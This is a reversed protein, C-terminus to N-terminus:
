RASVPSGQAEATLRQSVRDFEAVLDALLEARNSPNAELQACLSAMRPVGMALCGGKLKHAAQKLLSPDNAAIAREISEIQGPTHKLFIRIVNQSRRVKPDLASPAEAPEATSGAAGAGNAQESARADAAPWWRELIEELAAQSIPKALYDDMGAALVKEREGSLAHATVAIIPVRQKGAERKRIERAAQYGTMVPMQCDMLILPYERQELVDLAQQGDEAVDATYGLERLLELMVEQNIPNDEVVLLHRKETRRAKRESTLKRNSSQHPPRSNILRTMTAALDGARVPKQLFANALSKAEKPLSHEDESTLLIVLPNGFVESSRIKRALNLGDVEPMNMDTLVLGFPDGARMALELQNLASTAGDASASPIGWSTLLEELIFRNTENDDVILTRVKHQPVRPQSADVVTAEKLPLTFWFTSGKGLQSVVGIEGGMLQVLRKCIALGLGTGGYKRTLSGDVQSFADFLRGQAEESIGIGTDSVEFRVRPDAGEVAERRARLVIQGQETFKVANGLLNSLVQRLRDRDAEVYHPLGPEAHCVLEIRKLHARAAFLDVVEEVLHRLNCPENRLELKGAEIKSFDLVDNLVTMLGHASAHLTEIYRRQKTDLQTGHLLEIMGLVGNMPTRIEHSMNALFESKLRAAELAAATTKELRRFAKETLRFLPGVYFSVFGLAALLAGAAGFGASVLIDRELRSGAELRETSAVVAVRGVPAGEISAEAWSAYANPYRQLTGPRDSFLREVPVPLNGHTVLVKGDADTVVIASIDSDAVYSGLQERIKAEDALLIGLETTHALETAGRRAKWELDAAISPTLEEFIRSVLSFIFGSLALLIAATFVMFAVKIRLSSVVNRREEEIARTDLDSPPAANPDSSSPSQTM